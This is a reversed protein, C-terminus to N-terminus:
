FLMGVMFNIIGWSIPSSLKERVAQRTEKSSKTYSESTIWSMAYGYLSNEIFIGNEWTYSFGLKIGVVPGNATFGCNLKKVLEQDQNAQEETTGAPSIDGRWFVYGLSGEVFVPAMELFYYRIGLSTTRVIASVNYDMGSKKGNLKWNGSGFTWDYFLKNNVLYPIALTLKQWPSSNGVGIGVGFNFKERIELQTLSLEADEIKSDSVEDINNTISETKETKEPTPGEETTDGVYEDIDQYNGDASNYPDPGADIAFLKGPLVSFIGECTILVSVSLIIQYIYNLYIGEFINSKLM